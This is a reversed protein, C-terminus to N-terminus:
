FVPRPNIHVDKHHRDRKRIVRVIERIVVIQPTRRRTRQRGVVEVRLPIIGKGNRTGPTHGKYVEWGLFYTRLGQSEGYSNRTDHGEQDIITTERFLTTKENESAPLHLGRVCVDERFSTLGDIVRSRSMPLLSGNWLLGSM